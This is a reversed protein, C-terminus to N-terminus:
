IEFFSVCVCVSMSVYLFLFWTFCLVSLSQILCHLSANSVASMRPLHLLVISSFVFINERDVSLVTKKFYINFIICCTGLEGTFLLLDSLACTHMLPITLCVPAVLLLTFVFYFLIINRVYKLYCSHFICCIYSGAVNGICVSVYCLANWM